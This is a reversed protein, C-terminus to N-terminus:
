APRVRGLAAELRVLEAARPVAIRVTDHLGFSACDRVLVGQRALPDRLWAAGPVLVWPADSAVVQFGWRGLVAALDSRLALVERSWSPLDARELLEPLVALALGNVSWNPQRASLREALDADPTLVYGIRLGPCSFLKTLSGVVIAGRSADGRTWRGTALPYFAEDWAAAREDPGALTGTPNNPNSRVRGTGESPEAVVSELHRRWLSFEPEVVVARALAQAVLAIAEAGGNTLLVREPEIGIEGALAETAERADPYVRVEEAAARVLRAVDPAVPNMTASLDLIESTPVRLARALARADGGHPGPAPVAVEPRDTM